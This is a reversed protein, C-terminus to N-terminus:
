ASNAQVSKKADTLDYLSIKISVPSNRESSLFHPPPPGDKQMEARLLAPLQERRSSYSTFFPPFFSFATDTYRVYCQLTQQFSQLRKEFMFLKTLLVTIVANLM